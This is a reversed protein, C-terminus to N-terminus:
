RPLDADAGNSLLTRWLEPLVRRCAEARPPMGFRHHLVYCYGFTRRAAKRAMLNIADPRERRDDHALRELISLTKM